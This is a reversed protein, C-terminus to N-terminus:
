IDCRDGTETQWREITQRLRSMSERHTERAALNEREFPDRNLDYLEHEGAEDLNCKWGDRTVVCRCSSAASRRQREEHETGEFLKAMARTEPQANWEIFVDESLPPASGEIARRLSVGDLDDPASRGALDLLTPLLDVLSVPDEIMREGDTVGPVRVLLPVRSSSDHVVSKQVMGFDGMMDGHDSTFAVITDGDVGSEALADLIKGTYKDVLTAMGWYRAILQRWGREDTIPGHRGIRRVYERVAHYRWPRDPSPDEDFCPPLTVEDPAYMEDFCSYYPPHPELFSVCLLFPQEGCAEIFRAAERATFAPKSWAEPLRSAFSRSFGQWGDGETDPMFGTERLFDHYSCNLRGYEPRSVPARYEETSVWEDFGHQCVMEDGLHWKGVYACRYDPLMEAITPVGVLATDNLVCGHNHPYLGTLITGRSATCVPQTVYARRFVASDAALRDLCPTDPKENGHLSLVDYRLQDPIFLVLNPNNRM